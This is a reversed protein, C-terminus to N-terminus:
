HKNILPKIVRWVDRKLNPDQLMAVLSPLRTITTPVTTPLANSVFALTPLAQQFTDADIVPLITIKAAFVALIAQLLQDAKSASAGTVREYIVLLDGSMNGQSLRCGAYDDFDRQNKSARRHWVDIGMFALKQEPLRM